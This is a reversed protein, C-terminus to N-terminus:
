LQVGKKISITKKFNKRPTAAMLNPMGSVTKYKLNSLGESEMVKLGAVDTALLKKSGSGSGGGGRGALSKKIADLDYKKKTWGDIVDTKWSLEAETFMEDMAVLQMALGPNYNDTDEPDLMKKLESQSVEKYRKYLTANKKPDGELKSLIDTRAIERDLERLKEPKTSLDASLKDKKKQLIYAQTEWDGEESFKSEFDRDTDALGAIADDVQKQNEPRLTKGEQVVRKYLGKTDEDMTELIKKFTSDSVSRTTEAVRAAEDKQRQVLAAGEPNYGKQAGFLRGIVSTATQDVGLTQKADLGLAEGGGPVAVALRNIFEQMQSDKDRAELEEGGIAATTMKALQNIFGAAPWTMRVGTAAIDAWGNKGNIADVVDNVRALPSDLPTVGLAAIFPSKTVAEAYSGATAGEVDPVFGKLLNTTNKDAMNQGIQAYMMVPLAFAGLSKRIDYYDSGIKISWETKGEAQWRKQENPDSPYAGTVIGTSGLYLGIGAYGFSSAAHQLGESLAQAKEQATTARRYARADIAIGVLPTRKAGAVVGSKWVVSPFGVFFRSVLKGAYDAMDRKKLTDGMGVNDKLFNSVLDSLGTELKKMKGKDEAKSISSMGQTIYAEKEYIHRIELPDTLADILTQNKLDEGSLKGNAKNVQMYHDYLQSQIRSRIMTESLENATTVTNKYAGWLKKMPGANSSRNVENRMGVESAISKMGERFGMGAGRASSGGVYVKDLEKLNRNVWKSALRSSAKGTTATEFFTVVGNIFNNVITGTASLLSSDVADYQFVSIEQKLKRLAAFQEASLKQGSNELAKAAKLAIEYAGIKQARDAHYADEMAKEMADIDKDARSGIAKEKAANAADRSKTYDASLKDLRRIDEAGVDLEVKSFRDDYDATIEQHSARSRDLRSILAQGQAQETSSQQMVKRLQSYEPSGVKVRGSGLYARALHNDAPTLDDMRKLVDNLYDQVPVGKIAKPAEKSLINRSREEYMARTQAGTENKSRSRLKEGTKSKEMLEKVDIKPTAQPAEAKKPATKTPKAVPAEKAAAAAPTKKKNAFIDKKPNTPTKSPKKEDVTKAIKKLDNAALTEGPKFLSDTIVENVEKPTVKRGLEKSVEKAIQSDTMGASTKATDAKKRGAFIDKEPAVTKGVVTDAKSTTKAPAKKAPSKAPAADSRKKGAFIDKSPAEGADMAAQQAAAARQAAREERAKQKEAKRAEEAEKAARAAERRKVMEERTTGFRQMIEEDSMDEITRTKVGDADPAAKTAAKPPVPPTAEAAAKSAAENPSKIAQAIPTKSPAPMEEIPEPPRVPEPAEFDARRAMIRPDIDPAGAAQMALPRPTLSDMLDNLGMLTNQYEAQIAAKTQEVQQTITQQVQKVRSPSSIGDDIRGADTAQREIQSPDPLNRIADEAEQAARQAELELQARRAIEAADSAEDALRATRASGGTALSAADVLEDANRTLTTGARIAAAAETPSVLSGIVEAGAHLVKEPTSLEGGNRYIANMAMDKARETDAIMESYTKGGTPRWQGGILPISSQEVGMDWTEAFKDKGLLGAVVGPLKAIDMGGSQVPAWLQNMMLNAKAETVRAQRNKERAEAAVERPDRVGSQAAAQRIERSYPANPNKKVDLLQQNSFKSTNISKPKNIEAISKVPMALGGTGPQQLQMPTKLQQQNQQQLKKARAEAEEKARKAAAAAERAKREEERRRREEERAQAALDAIPAVSRGRNILSTPGQLTPGTAPRSTSQSSKQKNGRGFLGAIWDFM